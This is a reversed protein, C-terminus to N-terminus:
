TLSASLRDFFQEREWARRDGIVYLRRRARSVAVNLLNPKGAAWRRSGRASAATGLVVIVVDSEKGQMTHVTGSRVGAARAIDEMGATVDLFPSLVCISSQDIREFRLDQLLTRLADGEAPVWKDPSQAGEVHIWRDSGPFRAREGTGFIMAGGYAIDNAIDFMLRDCRRHVRLPAGVWVTGGGIRNAPDPLATGFRNHQDAIRQASVIHPLWQADRQCSRLLAHQASPPLTVVPELQQPDGVVLMRRARWCGSAVSQATAQGAEDVLLWGLDDRGLGAFLRPLSAFTTSVVPVVLFFSRWVARAVAPELRRVTGKLFAVLIALNNKLARGANLVFARHLALAAVTLESRATTFAQDAWPASLQLTEAPANLDPVAIGWDARRLSVMGDMEALRVQVQDREAETALYRREVADQEYRLREFAGQAAELSRERDSRAAALESMRGHWERGARFLTAVNTWFNPQAVAHRDCAAAAENRHQWAAALDQRCQATAQTAARRDADLRVLADALGVLSIRSESISHMTDAVAQREDTLDDVAARAACFRDVAVAWDPPTAATGLADRMGHVSSGSKTWWFREAFEVRNARNGLAAAILGWAPQGLVVSALEPFYGAAAALEEAGAVAAMGPIERTVNAAADNSNTALVIECGALADDLRRASPRYTENLEVTGVSGGFARAPDDFAALREAREVVVAAVVDRLLTTKGTGPPGNVAFIGGGALEAIAQDVAFQQSLVLPRAPDGPWRGPPLRRPEVGELLTAPAERVDVRRAVDIENKNRVYTRLAIGTNGQHAADRVTKLDEAIWSSLPEQDVPAAAAKVCAQVAHVRVGRPRLSRAVGLRDALESVLDHLDGATVPRRGDDDRAPGRAPLDTTPPANSPKPPTLLREVFAAAVVGAVGGAVPGAVASAAAGIGVGAAAGVAKAGATVGERAAAGTQDIVAKGIRRGLTPDQSDDPARPGFPDSFGRNEDEYGDLWDPRDAARRNRLNGVAWACASLSPSGHLVKGGSDFTLAFLASSDHTPREDACDVRGFAETLADVVASNEFLGCYVTFQWVHDTKLPRRRLAHETDIWPVPEDRAVDSVHGRRLKPIRQMGFMEMRRWFAVLWAADHEESVQV